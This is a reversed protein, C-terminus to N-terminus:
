DGSSWCYLTPTMPYLFRPIKLWPLALLPAFWTWPSSPFATVTHPAFPMANDYVGAPWFYADLRDGLLRKATPWLWAQLAAGLRNPTVEFVLVHGGRKTVLWMELLANTRIQWTERADRGTMHHLAYLAVTLDVSHAELPIREATGVIPENVRLNAALSAASPDLGIVHAGTAKYPIAPGCGVDLVTMGPAILSEVLAIQQRYCLDYTGETATVRSLDGYHADFYTPAATV